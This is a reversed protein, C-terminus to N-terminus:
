NTSIKLLSTGKEVAVGENVMIEEVIGELDSRIENEMKMAELILLKDGIKIKMGPKVFIKTILGPMPSKLIKEKKTEWAYTSRYSDILNQYKSIPKCNYDRISDTLIVSEGDLTFNFTFIKDNISITIENKSTNLIKVEFKKGKIEAEFKDIELKKLELELTLDNITIKM